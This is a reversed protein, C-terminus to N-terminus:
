VLRQYRSTLVYDKTPGHTVILTEFNDDDLWRMEHDYRDAACPHSARAVLLGDQRVFALAVYLQNRREAETFRLEITDGALCYGFQRYGAIERSGIRTIGDERYDLHSADPGPTFVAEGTFDGEPQIARELRWRGPLRKFVHAALSVADSM